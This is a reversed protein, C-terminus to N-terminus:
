VPVRVVDFRVLLAVAVSIGNVTVHMAMPALLSGTRHYVWALALGLLFIPLLTVLSLHIVAFLASSGIFAWRRGAERLWANFVVGRFFVEEALPGVIVVALVVLVPDLQAIARQATQPQVPMGMRELLWAVAVIVLQSGVWALLGWGFGSRLAGGPDRGGFSPLGALARPRHVFLWSVLLLAAATSLLIVAAGLLTMEGAGRLLVSADDGFPATAVSAVVLVLVLLILVSPGRYREPPLFSRVRIQRIASYVLGAVFAFAGILALPGLISLDMQLRGSLVAGIVALAGVIILVPGPWRPLTVTHPGITPHTGSPLSGPAM